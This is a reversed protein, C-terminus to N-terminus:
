DYITEGMTMDYSAIEYKNCKKCYRNSNYDISLYKWDHIGLFCLIKTTM